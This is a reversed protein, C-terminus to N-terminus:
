CKQLPVYEVEEVKKPEDKKYAAFWGIGNDDGTLALNLAGSTPLKLMGLLELAVKSIYLLPVEGNLKLRADGLTVGIVNSILTSGPLKIGIFISGEVDWAFIIKSTLSSGGSLSGLAGLTVSFEMGTANEKLTGTKFNEVAVPKYDKTINIGNLVAAPVLGFVKCFSSKRMESLSMDFKVESIDTTFISKKDKATLNIKYGSFHLKGYSLVDVSKKDEEDNKPEAFTMTGMIDFAFEMAAPNVSIVTVGNIKAMTLPTNEFMLEGGNSNMMLVSVGNTNQLSGNLILANYLCGGASPKLGMFRNIVFQSISNFNEVTGNEFLVNMELLKFEYEAAPDEIPTASGYFGDAAYHILAFFPSIGDNQPGKDTAKLPVLESGVHHARIKSTDSLGALLPKLSDPFSTEGLSVNLALFGKWNEDTIIEFFKKYYNNGNTYKEYAEKCYSLMWNALNAPEGCEEPPKSFNEKGTWLNPNGCLSAAPDEHNYIKGKVGKVIIINAYNNYNSDDGPKLKFEWNEISFENQFNGIHKTTDAIVCFISSSSFASRIENTTNAFALDGKHSFAVTIKEFRSNSVEGIFGSPTAATMLNNNSILCRFSDNQAANTHAHNNRESVLITREFGYIQEASAWENSGMDNSPAFTDSADKLIHSNVNKYPVIPLAPSGSNFDTYLDALLLVNSDGSFFPTELSQSFYKGCFKVWSTIMDDTLLSKPPPEVFDSISFEKEPYYPSFAPRDPVFEIIGDKGLMIYETGSFGCLLKVEKGDKTTVRYKGLPASNIYTSIRPLFSVGGNNQLDEPNKSEIVPTLYLPDGYLSLFNCPIPTQNEYELFRMTNKHFVGFGFEFNVNGHVGIDGFIRSSILCKKGNENTFSYEFGCRFNKIFEDRTLRKEAIIKGCKKGCLILSVKDIYSIFNITGISFDVSKTLTLVGTDKNINVNAQNDIKIDIGNDATGSIPIRFFNTIHTFEDSMPMAINAKETIWIIGRNAGVDSLLYSCKTLLTKAQEEDISDLDISQYVFSVSQDELANALTFTKPLEGSINDLVVALLSRGNDEFYLSLNEFKRTYTIM